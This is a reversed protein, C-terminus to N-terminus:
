ARKKLAIIETSRNAGGPKTAEADPLTRARALRRKRARYFVASSGVKGVNGRETAHDTQTGDM